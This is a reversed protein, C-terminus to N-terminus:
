RRRLAIMTIDDHQERGHAHKEVAAVVSDLLQAPTDRGHTALTKELKALTFPKSAADQSETVGDTYLLLQDGPELVVEKLDVNKSNDAVVGLVTGGLEVREVANKKYRYILPKEHGCGALKLTRTKSDCWLLLLSLFMGPKLDKKLLRNTEVAVARLDKAGADLLSHLISRAMVMVLGAPVGKGSVDGIACYVEGQPTQIYDYYDGGVEKATKMRGFVELWPLVPESRPLLQAQIRSAVRLESQITEREKVEHAISEYLKVTKLFSAALGALGALLALDEKEFHRAAELQIFGHVEDRFLLPVVMFARIELNAISQAASFRKDRSSDHCLIAHKKEYVRKAITKSVQPRAAGKSKRDRVIAPKLEAVSPGLLIFGHDAQPFVELLKDMIKGLMEDRERLAALAQSVDFMLQLRKQLSALQDAAPLKLDLATTFAATADFSYAEKPESEALEAEALLSRAKVADFTETPPLPRRGSPPRNAHPADKKRFRLVVESLSLAEGDAMKHRDVKIGNIYLGNVSGLDQVFVADKEVTFQIHKRSIGPAPISIECSPDRGVTDGDRVQFVEGPTPGKEVEISPM